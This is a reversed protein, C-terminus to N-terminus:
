MRHAGSNIFILAPQQLPVSAPQVTCVRIFQSFCVLLEYILVKAPTSRDPEELSLSHSWSFVCSCICHINCTNGAWWAREWAHWWWAPNQKGSNKVVANLILDRIGRHWTHNSRYGSIALMHHSKGGGEMHFCKISLPKLAPIAGRHTSPAVSLTQDCSCAPFHKINMQKSTLSASIDVFFASFTLYCLRPSPPPWRSPANMWEKMWEKM